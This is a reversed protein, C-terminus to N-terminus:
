GLAVVLAEVRAAGHRKLVAACADLTAGTTAVDDILLVHHPSARRIVFAGQLASRRERRTRGVQHGTNRARRLLQRMPIGSNESLVKALLEAQNFGRSCKRFWHLPIPCLADTRLDYQECTQRLLEGLPRAFKGAGRYKLRHILARVVPSQDHEVAAYLRDLCQYRRARLIDTDWFVPAAAISRLADRGLREPFLADFLFSLM